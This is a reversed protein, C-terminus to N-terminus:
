AVLAQHRHALLAVLDVIELDGRGLLALQECHAIAADRVVPGALGAHVPAEHHGEEALDLHRVDVHPLLAVDLQAHGRRVLGAQRWRAREAM